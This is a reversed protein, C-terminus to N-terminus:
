PTTYCIENSKGSEKGATNYATVAFYYTHKALLSTVACTTALGVDIPVGYVGSSAGVYMKYGALDAEANPDWELTAQAAAFVTFTCTASGGSSGGQVFAGVDLRYSGPALPNAVDNLTCSSGVTRPVGNLYWAFTASGLGPAVSASMTMPQSPGLEAQRGSMTVVVPVGMQATISVSISGTGTNVDPFDITGVTTQGKVIRVIDVAGMVVQGADLLKVALTYYGRDIAANSCMAKGPAVISFALDQAAGQKPALQAQISPADVSGASWTVTLNLGGTGAVAATAIDLTGTTGTDVRVSAEGHTVVQAEANKGDVAITWDGFVLGKLTISSGTYNGFWAAGRPGTGSVDYSAVTMDVMPELSRAGGEAGADADAVRITVEGGRLSSLLAPLQCSTLLCLAAAAAVPAALPLARHKAM